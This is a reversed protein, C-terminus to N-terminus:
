YLWNTSFYASIVTGSVLRNALPNFHRHVNTSSSAIRFNFSDKTDAGCSQGRGSFWKLRWVSALSTPTPATRKWHLSLSSLFTIKKALRFNFEACPRYDATSRSHRAMTHATPRKRGYRSDPLNVRMGIRYFPLILLRLFPQSGYKNILWMM